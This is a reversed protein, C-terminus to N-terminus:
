EEVVTGWAGLLEYRIRVDSLPEPVFTDFRVSNRSRNYTFAERVVEGEVEVWVDISEPVPVQSLFFERKLGAAQIGLAELAGTWDSDCISWAVGGVADTVDLYETGAEATACGGRPGVISSFSVMDPSPRAEERLWEILGARSVPLNGTYDNEDSIVVVSLFADPRQFGQNYADAQTVLATWLAGRGREDGSGEPMMVMNRFRGVPDSTSPDIWREGSFTRLRGRHGENPDTNGYMDTSIVGLHYDLGSDLFYQMFASFNNSLSTQEEVMSGSNDIVFLVDVSAVTVQVIRDEVEPAGIEPPNPEAQLSPDGQLNYENCGVLGIVVLSRWM